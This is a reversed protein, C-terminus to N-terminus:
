NFEVNLVRGSRFLCRYLEVTPRGGPGALWVKGGIRLEEFDGEYWVSEPIFEQLEPHGLDGDVFEQCSILEAEYPGPNGQIGGPTWYYWGAAAGLVAVVATGIVIM